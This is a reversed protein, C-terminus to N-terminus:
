IDIYFLCNGFKWSVEAIIGISRCIWQKGPKCPNGLVNYSTNGWKNM